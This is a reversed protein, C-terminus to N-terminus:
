TCPGFTTRNPGRKSAVNECIPNPKPNSGQLTSSAGRAYGNTEFVIVLVDAAITGTIAEAIRLIVKQAAHPADGKKDFKTTEVM